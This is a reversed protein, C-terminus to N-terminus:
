RTIRGLAVFTDAGKNDFLFPTNLNCLLLLLETDAGRGGADEVKIIDLHWLLINEALDTFTVLVGNVRQVLATDTNSSLHDSAGLTGKVNSERVHHLALLKSLRNSGELCELVM